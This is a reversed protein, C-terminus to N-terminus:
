CGEKLFADHPERRRHVFNLFRILFRVAKRQTEMATPEGGSMTVAQRAAVTLQADRRGSRRVEWQGKVLVITFHKSM